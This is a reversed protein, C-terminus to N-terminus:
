TSSTIFYTLGFQFKRTLNKILFLKWYISIFYNPHRFLFFGMFISSQSFFDQFWQFHILTVAFSFCFVNGHLIFLFLIIVCIVCIKNVSQESWQFVLLLTQFESKFWCCIHKIALQFYLHLDAFGVIALEILKWSFDSYLLSLHTLSKILFLVCSTQTVSIENWNCYWTVPVLGTDWLITWLSENCSIAIGLPSSLYCHDLSASLLLLLLLFLPRLFSM